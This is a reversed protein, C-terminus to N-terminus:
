INKAEEILDKNIKSHVLYLIFGIGICFLIKCDYFYPIYVLNEIALILAYCAVSGLISNIIQIFILSGDRSFKKNLVGLNDYPPYNPDTTLVLLGELLKFRKFLGRTKNLKRTYDIFNIHTQINNSYINMGVIICILFILFLYTKPLGKELTIASATATFGIFILYTRTAEEINRICRERFDKLAAYENLLITLNQNM